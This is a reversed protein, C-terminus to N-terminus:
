DHQRSDGRTLMSDIHDISNWFRRDSALGTKYVHYGFWFMFISVVIVFYTMGQLLPDMQTHGFPSPKNAFYYITYDLFLGLVGFCGYLGGLILNTRILHRNTTSTM